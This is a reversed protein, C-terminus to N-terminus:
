IPGATSFYRVLNPSDTRSTPKPPVGSIMCDFPPATGSSVARRRVALMNTEPGAAATVAADSTAFAVPIDSTMEMSTPPVLQSTQRIVPPMGCVVTFPVASNLTSPNGSLTTIVSMTVIPAPPPLM